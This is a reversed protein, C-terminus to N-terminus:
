FFHLIYNLSWFLLYNGKIVVIPVTAEPSIREVSGELYEDLMVDGIVLMKKNRFQEIVELYDKQM